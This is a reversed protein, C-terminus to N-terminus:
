KVVEFLQIINRFNSITDQLTMEDIGDVRIGQGYLLSSYVILLRPIDLDESRFMPFHGHM